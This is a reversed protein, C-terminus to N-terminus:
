ASQKPSVNGPTSGAAWGDALPLAEAVSIASFTGMDARVPTSCGNDVLPCSRASWGDKTSVTPGDGTSSESADDLWSATSLYYVVPSIRSSADLKLPSTDPLGHGSPYVNTAHQRVDSTM